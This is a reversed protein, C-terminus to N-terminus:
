NRHGSLFETVAKAIAEVRQKKIIENIGSFEMTGAFRTYEKMPTVAVKAGNFHCSHTIGTPRPVNISYGKGAQIPLKLRMKKPYNESWSGAALVIEDASYDSKDTIVKTIQNNNIL